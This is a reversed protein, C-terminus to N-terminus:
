ARLAEASVPEATEDGSRASVLIKAGNGGRLRKMADETEDLSVTEVWGDTVYAGARMAEIVEDYEHQLYGMAGVVDLEARVLSLGGVAFPREHLAVVVLRGTPALSAIAGEIAPGVGAADFAVSVGEGDTLLQVAGALSDNIPDVVTAGFSAILERREVSPESVLVRTVGRAKLAFYLGIGIPGAGVILASANEPYEARSVAHWAVTMPEVLAGMKLDIGEPLVHLRHADVVTYEAMGGGDSAIGHFSIFPCANPREARCAVCEGCSYQGFVACDDGVQVSDVGEGLAAVTGSFEHGLVQPLTAGTVPHPTDHSLGLAEPAWVAHLDSGCIGAYGNRLLVQGPGPTPVPIDDVRLDERGHLVVAKMTTM